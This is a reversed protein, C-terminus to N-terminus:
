RDVEPACNSPWGGVVGWAGGRLVLNLEAREDWGPGEFVPNTTGHIVELRITATDGDIVADDMRISTVDEVWYFSDNPCPEDYTLADITAQDDDLVAQLYQAATAEPSGAPYEPTNGGTLALVVGAVVLVGVVIAGWRLARDPAHTTTMGGDHGVGVVGAM